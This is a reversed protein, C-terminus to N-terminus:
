TCATAWRESGRGIQNYAGFVWRLSPHHFEYGRFTPLALCTASRRQKRHPMTAAANRNSSSWAGGRQDGNRQSVSLRTASAGRQVTLGHVATRRGAYSAGCTIVRPLDTFNV